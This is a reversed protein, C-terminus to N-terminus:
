EKGGLRVNEQLQKLEEYLWEKAKEFTELFLREISSECWNDNGNFYLIGDTLYNSFQTQGHFYLAKLRTIDKENEAREIEDLLDQCGKKFQYVGNQWEMERIQEDTIM